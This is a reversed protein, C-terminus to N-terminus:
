VDQGVRIIRLDIRELIEKVGETSIVVRRTVYWGILFGYLICFIPVGIGMAICFLDTLVFITFNIKRDLEFLKDM